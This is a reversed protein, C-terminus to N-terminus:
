APPEGGRGAITDPATEEAVPEFEARRAIWRVVVVLLGLGVVAAILGEAVPGGALPIGGVPAARRLHEVYAAIANLDEEAFAFRPMAGPGVVIAEGVILPDAPGLGPAVVGGGIGGGAGTAGHCAACNNVYLAWGRQVDGLEAVVSPIPPGEGFTSTYAVIAAIQEETLAPERDWSSSGLEGPPMRGTRMYFDNGAAGVDLLSPAFESGTGAAGHCSACTMLYLQRGQELVNTDSVQNLRGTTSDAPAAPLLLLGGALGILLLLGRGARM